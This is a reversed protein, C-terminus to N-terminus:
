HHAPPEAGGAETPHHDGHGEGHGDGHGEGHGAGHAAPAHHFSARALYNVAPFTRIEPIPIYNRGSKRSSAPVSAEDNLNGFTIADSPCADACATLKRLAADPVRNNFGRDRYADKVRRIRQVCFTCKEMVGMTRAVVDPNLQLNLPEPWLYTHYNFRRAGYPCANACYRTGVCRNYIMANLGDLTHYTALVPCVSECPAHGCQQCMLPVFHVDGDTIYRNVRIWGMERGQKAKVKGVVPLNNEAYCAIACAGCGTCADTDITLGFRYVPHEPLEYFDEIGAKQLRVDMPLGHRGVLDGPHAAAADGVPAWASAAVVEAWGRGLHDDSGFTSVLDAKAGKATARVRAGQWALCGSGDRQAGLLAAVNVGTGDAYRGAGTHGDGLALAVTDERVFPHVEVGVDLSGKDTALTLLDNDGVGLKAATAPHVLVFSGWVQGTMPDPTEQAWPSNAYRGDRRFPQAYVHLALDGSPAAPLTIQGERPTLPRASVYSPMAVFGAALTSEWWRLQAPTPGTPEADAVVADETTTPAMEGAAAIWAARVREHWNGAPAGAPDLARWTALLIDGLSRTDRVPAGSPQRVLWLGSVVEEDGWDEFADSIPLTVQCAAQTASPHSSFSFSAGAARIAEALGFESPLLSVLDCGDDVLLVGVSGAKLDAVLAELRALTSIPGPYGGASFAPTATVLNLVYTAAALATAGASSGAVGGPLAVASPLTAFHEAIEAIAAESLGSAAAAAAVDAGALWGAFASAVGKKEAVLKAVALAVHAESGAAAAYWDDARAGTQGKHPSVLAFRAVFNGHNASRAMAYQSQTGAGGWAGGLFDAGFSLVYHAGMLDYRPLAPSGFVLEAAAAEADRGLGEFFVAEGGTMSQILGVITGSRYGGLWAVKKGEARAKAVASALKPIAADWTTTAGADLPGAFRDPSYHRQLELLAAAPVAAALPTQRNAMVNIVRGERHVALVPWADAGTVVTTAFLTPTGPTVAEPRVVYPLITEVPTFYLNDDIGCATLATAGGGVGMASLFDRRNM